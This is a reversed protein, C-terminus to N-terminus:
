GCVKLGKLSKVIEPPDADDAIGAYDQLASM